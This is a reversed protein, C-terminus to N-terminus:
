GRIEIPSRDSAEPATKPLTIKLLGDALKVDIARSDVSAPLPFIREFGGFRRESIRYAGGHDDREETKQGRVALRSDKVDVKLNEAAMGPVEICLHYAEGTEKLDAAPAGMLGSIVAGAFPRATQLPRMVGLGSMEGWTQDFWRRMGAQWATLPELSQRWLEATQTAAQQGMKLMEQGTQMAEQHLQLGVDPGPISPAAPKGDTAGFSPTETPRDDAAARRAGHRERGDESPGDSPHANAETM